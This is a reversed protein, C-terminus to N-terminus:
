LLVRPPPRINFQHQQKHKFLIFFLTISDFHKKFVKITGSENFLLVESKYIFVRTRAQEGM